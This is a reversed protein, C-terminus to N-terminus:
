VARKLLPISQPFQDFFSQRTGMSMIESRIDDKSFHGASLIRQYAGHVTYQKLFERLQCNYSPDGYPGLPKCQWNSVDDFPLVDVLLAKRGYKPALLALYGDCSGKLQKHKQSNIAFFRKNPACDFTKVDIRKNAVEIDAGKVTRGSGNVIMHQRITAVDDPSMQSQYHELAILEGLSGMLDGAINRDRGRDRNAARSKENTRRRAEGMMAAFAWHKTTLDFFM